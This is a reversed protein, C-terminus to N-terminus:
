KVIDWSFKDSSDYEKLMNKLYLVADDDIGHIPGFSFGNMEMSLLNGDLDHVSEHNMVCKKEWLTYSIFTINGNEKTIVLGNKYSGNTFKKELPMMQEIKNGNISMYHECYTWDDKLTHKTIFDNLEPLKYETNNYTSHKALLDFLESSTYQM